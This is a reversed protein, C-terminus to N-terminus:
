AGSLLRAFAEAIREAFDPGFRAPALVSTSQTPHAPTGRDLGFGMAERSGYLNHSRASRSAATAPLAASSNNTVFEGGSIPPYGEALKTDAFQAITEQVVAEVDIRELKTRLQQLGDAGIVASGEVEFRELRFRARRNHWIRRDL